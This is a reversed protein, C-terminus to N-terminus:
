VLTKVKELLNVGGDSKDFYGDANFVYFKQSDVPYNSSILIKASPHRMKIMEYFHCGDIQPMALDLIFLDVRSAEKRLFNLAATNDAFGIADYGAQGLMHTLLVRVKVEDDIVVINKHVPADDLHTKIKKLLEPLGASKDYYDAAGKIRQRQEELPYVSSVVVKVGPHFAQIIDFLTPGDVEAMNIDLLVLNVPSRKLLERAEVCTGASLVQYGEKKLLWSFVRVIQEEDDVILITKPM